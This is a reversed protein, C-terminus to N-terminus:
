RTPNNGSAQKDRVFTLIAKRAAPSLTPWADLVERLGPDLSSHSSGDGVPETGCGLMSFTEQRVQALNLGRETLVRAAVGDPVCLLGLLLHETGVYNHNLRRAEAAAHEIVLKAAPTTPLNAATVRDPAIKILKEAELRLKFLDVNLNKLVGAGVGSGEKILGLFIHEAGLYDHNFRRAELNALAMVKRARETFQEFM